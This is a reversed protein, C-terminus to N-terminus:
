LFKGEVDSYGYGLYASCTTGTYDFGTGIPIRDKYLKDVFQCRCLSVYWVLIPVSVLM